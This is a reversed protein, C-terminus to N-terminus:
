GYRARWEKESLFTPQPPKSPAAQIAPPTTGTGGRVKAVAHGLIAKITEPGLFRELQDGNMGKVVDGTWSQVTEKAYQAADSPDVNMGARAQSLMFDIMM